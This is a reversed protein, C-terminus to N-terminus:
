SSAIEWALLSDVLSASAMSFESQSDFISRLSKSGERQVLIASESVVRHFRAHSALVTQYTPTGSYRSGGEGYLWVGMECANDRGAIEPEIGAGTKAASRLRYRWRGHASVASEIKSRLSEDKPM